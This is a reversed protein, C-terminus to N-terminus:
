RKKWSCLCTTYRTSLRHSQPPARRFSQGANVDTSSCSEKCLEPLHSSHTISSRLLSATAFLSWNRIVFWRPASLFTKKTSNKKLSRLRTNRHMCVWTKSMFLLSHQHLDQHRRHTLGWLSWNQCSPISCLLDSGMQSQSVFFQEAIALDCLSQRQSIWTIPVLSFFSWVSSQVLSVWWKRMVSGFSSDLTIQDVHLWQHMLFLKQRSVSNKKQKCNELQQSVNAERIFIGWYKRGSHM